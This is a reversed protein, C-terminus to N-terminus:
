EKKWLVRTARRAVANNRRVDDQIRMSRAASFALEDRRERDRVCALDVVPALHGQVKFNPVKLKSRHCADQPM